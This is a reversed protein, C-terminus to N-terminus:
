KGKLPLAAGARVTVDPALGPLNQVLKAVGEAKMTAESESCPISASEAPCVIARVLVDQAKSWGQPDVINQSFLRLQIPFRAKSVPIKAGALVSDPTSIDRVTIVITELPAPRSQPDELYLLAEVIPANKDAVSSPLKSPIQIQPQDETPAQLKSQLEKGIMPPPQPTGGLLTATLAVAAVTQQVFPALWADLELPYM